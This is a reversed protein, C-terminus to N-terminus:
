PTIHRLLHAWSGRLPYSDALLQVRQPRLVPEWRVLLLTEGLQRLPAFRAREARVLTRFQLVQENLRIGHHQTARFGQVPDQSGAGERRCSWRPRNKYSGGIMSEIGRLALGADGGTRRASRPRRQG